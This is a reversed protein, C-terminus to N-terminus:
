ECVFWKGCDPCLIVCFGTFDVYNERIEETLLELNSKYIIEYFAKRVAYLDEDVTVTIWDDSMVQEPTVVNDISREEYIHSVACGCECDSQQIVETRKLNTHELIYQKITDDGVDMALANAGSKHAGTFKDVVFEM